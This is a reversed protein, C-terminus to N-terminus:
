SKISSKVIEEEELPYFSDQEVLSILEPVEVKWKVPSSYENGVTYFLFLVVQYCNCLM